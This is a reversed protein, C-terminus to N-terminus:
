SAAEKNLTDTQEQAKALSHYLRCRNSGPNRVMVRQQADWTGWRGPSYKQMQYRASPTVPTELSQIM